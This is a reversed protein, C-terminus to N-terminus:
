AARRTVMRTILCAAVSIILAILVMESAHIDMYPMYIDM